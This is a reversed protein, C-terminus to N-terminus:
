ELWEWDPAKSGKNLADKISNRNYGSGRSAESVSQYEIGDVWCRKPKNSFVKTSSKSNDNSAWQWDPYNLSNIRNKISGWDLGYEKAADSVSNFKIPVKKNQKEDYSWIIVSKSLISNIVGTMAQQIKERVPLSKQQEIPQNYCKEIKLKENMLLAEKALWTELPIWEKGNFLVLFEFNDWGYKDYDAQLLKNDHIKQELDQIHKRLRDTVNGAHGFYSFDNIKCNIEYLGSDKANSLEKKQEMSLFQGWWAFKENNNIQKELVNYVNPAYEKILKSETEKRKQENEWQPGQAIVNFEFCEEKYLQFDIKLLKCVHKNARLTQKHKSIRNSINSSEGIYWRENKICKIEYLGPQKKPQIFDKAM